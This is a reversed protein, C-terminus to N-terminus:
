KPSKARLSFMQGVPYTRRVRKKRFVLKEFEVVITAGSAFVFGLRLTEEDEATLEYACLDGISQAEIGETGFLDSSLRKVGHLDFVFHADQEFNLFELLASTRQRNLYFPARGNPEYDLGDGIRLCLLRGDHLSKSAFGFRFFEWARHGVRHEFLDLQRYYEETTSEFRRYAQKRVNEDEDIWGNAAVILEYTFYRMGLPSHNM